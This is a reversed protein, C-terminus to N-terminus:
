ETPGNIQGTQVLHQKVIVLKISTDLLKEMFLCQVTPGEWAAGQLM